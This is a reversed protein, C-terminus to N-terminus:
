SISIQKTQMQKIYRLSGINPTYIKILTIDEEQTSGKILIYHGEKDEKITKTKFDIKDSTLITIGVKTDNGNEHLIHRWERMKLGHTDKARRHTELLYCITPL